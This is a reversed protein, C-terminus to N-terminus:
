NPPRTEKQREAARAATPSPIAVGSPRDTSSAASPITRMATALMLRAIRDTEVSRDPSTWYTRMVEAEGAFLPAVADVLSVLQSSPM